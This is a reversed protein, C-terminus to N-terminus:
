HRWVSFPADFWLGNFDFQLRGPDLTGEVWYVENRNRLRGLLEDVMGAELGVLGYRNRRLGQRTVAAHLAAAEAADPRVVWIEAEPAKVALRDLKPVGCAACEIWLVPRLTYDLAVLDPVFPVSDDDLRVGVRLRERFFLLFALVRLLVREPPDEDDRGVVLRPPLHQHQRSGSALHFTYKV